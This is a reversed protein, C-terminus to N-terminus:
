DMEELELQILGQLIVVVVQDTEESQEQEVEEQLLEVKDLFVEVM